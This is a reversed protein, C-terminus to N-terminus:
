FNTYGENKRKQIINIVKYSYYITNLSLIVLGFFKNITLIESLFCIDLLFCILISSLTLPSVIILCELKKMIKTQFLIGYYTFITNFLIFIWQTINFSEIQNSYIMRILTGIGASFVGTYFISSDLYTRHLYRNMFDFLTYLVAVIFSFILGGPEEAYTIIAIGIIDIIASLIQYGKIESGCIFHSSIITMLPWIKIISFYCNIPTRSISFIMFTLILCGVLGKLLINQFNISNLIENRKKENKKISIIIRGFSILSLLSGLQSLLTINSTNYYVM